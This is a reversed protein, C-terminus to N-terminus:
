GAEGLVMEYADLVARAGEIIGEKKATQLATEDVTAHLTTQNQYGEIQAEIDKFIARTVPHSNWDLLDAKTLVM